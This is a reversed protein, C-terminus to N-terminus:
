VLARARPKRPAPYPPGRRRWRTVPRPGGPPPAPGLLIGAHEGTVPAVDGLTIWDGGIVKVGTRQAVGLPALLVVSLFLAVVRIM